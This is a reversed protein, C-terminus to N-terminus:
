GTFRDDRTETDGCDQRRRFLLALLPFFVWGGLPAWKGGKRFFFMPYLVFRFLSVVIYILVVFRLLAILFGAGSIGSRRNASTGGRPVHEEYWEPLAHYLGNLEADTNGEFLKETLRDTFLYRLSQDAYRAIQDGYGLYWQREAQAILLVLDNQGFGGAEGLRYVAEAIGEGNLTRVTIVGAVSGYKKDLMENIEAFNRRSEPSLMQADDIIWRQYYDRNTTKRIRGGGVTVTLVILLVAAILPIGYRKFFIM